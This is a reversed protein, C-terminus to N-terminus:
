LAGKYSQLAKFLRMHVPLWKTRREKQSIGKATKVNQGQQIRLEFLIMNLSNLYYWHCYSSTGSLQVSSRNSAVVRDKGLVSLFEMDRLCESFVSVGESLLGGGYM